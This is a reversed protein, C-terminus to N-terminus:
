LTLRKALMDKIRVVVLLFWMGPLRTSSALGGRLIMGWNKSKGQPYRLLSQNGAGAKYEHSMGTLAWYTDITQSNGPGPSKLHESICEPAEQRM